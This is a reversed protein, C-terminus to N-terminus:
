KHFYRGLEWRDWAWDWVGILDLFFAFIFGAMVVCLAWAWTM